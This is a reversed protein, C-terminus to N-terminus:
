KSSPMASPPTIHNLRLYMAMQAYHDELDGTLEFLARARPKKAGRFFTITDGLQSDQLGDMAKDCYDFSAKIATLLTGKSDTETLKSEPPAPATTLMACVHNNAAILHTAMKGFSMQEPTPKYSYKDVPMTEFAAVVYKAQRSYIERASSVVPNAATQAPSPLSTALGIMTLWILRKM